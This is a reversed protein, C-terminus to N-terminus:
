LLALPPARSMAVTMISGEDALLPAVVAQALAAVKAALGDLRVAEARARRQLLPGSTDPRPRARWLSWEGERM